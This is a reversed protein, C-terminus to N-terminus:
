KGLKKQLRTLEATLVLSDDKVQHYLATMRALKREAEDREETLMTIKADIHKEQSIKRGVSIQRSPGNESQAPEAPARIDEKKRIQRLGRLLSGGFPSTQVEEEDSADPLAVPLQSAAATSTKLKEELDECRSREEQLLRENRQREERLEEKLRNNMEELVGVNDAKM